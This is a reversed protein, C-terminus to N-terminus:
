ENQGDKFLFDTITQANNQQQISDLSCIEEYEPLVATDGTSAVIAGQPLTGITRAVIEGFIETSGAAFHIAKTVQFKIGRSFNLIRGKEILEAAGVITIQRDGVALDSALTVVQEVGSSDATEGQAFANAPVLVNDISTSGKTAGSLLTIAGSAFTLITGPELDEILPYVLISSESGALAAGRLEITSGFARRVEHDERFKGIFLETNSGATIKKQTAGPNPSSAVLSM